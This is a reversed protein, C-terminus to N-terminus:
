THIQVMIKAHSINKTFSTHHVSPNMPPPAPMRKLVIRYPKGKIKRLIPKTPPKSEVPLSSDCGM